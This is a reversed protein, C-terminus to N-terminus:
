IIHSFNEIGNTYRYVVRPEITHKLKRGAINTDFVRSLAPPRLEVMTSIARRNIVDRIVTVPQGPIQQQSYITNRLQVDPRFMWGKYFIPLSSNPDVDFRGPIGPPAFGPQNVPGPQSRRVGEAAVDYSWYIPSGFLPRDLNAIEFGPLHLITIADNNSKSQFNQYRGLFSNFSFGNISKSVFAVSKVESDVAQSFNETFALRFIFSSLYDISAVARINHAFITEANVKVDEGGHPTTTTVPQGAANVSSTTIGRDIVGFYNLNLFSNQSPRSRFSEQLSWGRKSLYEGGLTADMSRNIAWYFTDGIVT